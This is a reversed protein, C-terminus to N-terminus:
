RDKRRLGLISLFFSSFIIQIGLVALTMSFIAFQEEGLAGFGRDIWQIVIVLGIVFGIFFIASGLLLGQELRVKGRLRDFLPDHEGMFYVGYARAGLSLHILQSGIITLMAAAITAHIDWRRGFLEVGGLGVVSITLLGIIIMVLGPVAFLYTPSHVLLFRLHRWGDSWTNLKAEGGGRPHLEIPIEVINLNEKSARIVMESAFEMGTTRLDLRELAEKRIGRMGCHADSIGTRYFLNLIGTLIPNGVWRHLWPMAGKHIKGKLRTGMVMEAGDKLPGVFRDVEDFNYTDDGDGMVIYRGRAAAFGAMYASGYGKRSEHVVRAGVKEALAQSGDTSGNDAVVVEGSVGMREISRLAKTVCTEITEVENLCPIVVSVEVTDEVVQEHSDPETEISM